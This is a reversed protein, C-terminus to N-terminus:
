LMARPAKGDKVLNENETLKTKLNESVGRVLAAGISTFVFVPPEREHKTQVAAGDRAGEDERGQCAAESHQEEVDWV